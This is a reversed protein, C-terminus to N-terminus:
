WIKYVHKALQDISAGGDDVDVSPEIVTGSVENAPFYYTIYVYYIRLIYTIYIVYNKTRRCYAVVIDRLKRCTKASLYYTIYVYYIRLIRLIIRLVYGATRLIYTINTIATRPSQHGLCLRGDRRIM